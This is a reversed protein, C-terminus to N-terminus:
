NQARYARSRKLSYFLATQGSVSTRPNVRTGGCIPNKLEDAMFTFNRGVDRPHHPTAILHYILPEGLFRVPLDDWPRCTAGAPAEPPRPALPAACEECTISPGMMSSLNVDKRVRFSARPPAKVMSHVSELLMIGLLLFRLMNKRLLAATCFRASQARVRALVVAGRRCMRVRLVLMMCVLLMMCM